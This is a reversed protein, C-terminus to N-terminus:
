FNKGFWRIKNARCAAEPKDETKEKEFGEDCWLFLGIPKLAHRLFYPSPRSAAITM